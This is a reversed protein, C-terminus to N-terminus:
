SLTVIRPLNRYQEHFGLGYGVLYKGETRFGVYDIPVDVKREDTKEVLAAIRVSKPNQGLLYRYLHDLTVGTNLIGDLLLVDKGTADVKPTYMIERVAVGGASADNMEAKIFHCVVPIKLERVLDAMFLFSDELIGVVHLTRGAFERNIKAAM